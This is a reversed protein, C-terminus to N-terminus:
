SYNLLYSNLSAEDYKNGKSLNEKKKLWQHNEPAFAAQIHETNNFDFASLPLIHDIQYEKTSGPCPGLFEMIATYDIGYECSPRTKGNKSYLRFADRVRKRLLGIIRIKEIELRDRDYCIKCVPRNNEKKVARDKKGCRSCIVQPYKYCKTCIPKGNKYKKVVNLEGCIGCIKQPPKYCRDCIPQKNEYKHIPGLRGCKSCKKQPPNYCKKCVYGNKIKQAARGMEGCKCCMRIPRERNDQHKNLIRYCKECININKKKSKILGYENCLDCKKRIVFYNTYCSNCIEINKKSFKRLNKIKKCLDCCKKM